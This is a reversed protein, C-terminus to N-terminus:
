FSNATPLIEHRKNWDYDRRCRNASSKAKNSPILCRLQVVALQEMPSPSDIALFRLLWNEVIAADVVCNLPGYLPKRQGIRGIAWVMADRAPKLKPKDIL